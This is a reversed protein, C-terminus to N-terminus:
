LVLGMMEQLYGGNVLKRLSNVQNENLPKKGM